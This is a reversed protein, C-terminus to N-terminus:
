WNLGIDEGGTPKNLGGMLPKNSKPLPPPPTDDVEEEKETKSAPAVQAGKISLSMKQENEDISLIKVSVEDGERVVNDVRTVRHHAVESIHVLGEVGSAIRVFAGFPMIKSVTGTVIENVPYKAEAGDWPGELLDRYSFSLKGTETDIKDIKVKVKEGETLVESPHKIRDWSIKSIHILGDVGGIDVFAGFDMIKRVIGEHEQGVQLKGMLEERAAERERELLARHSLVLNGRAPNAENVVCRMKQDVFESCDEVRFLAIQSIPIFGRIGGVKCELGGANHGTITAEVISGQDIDSWDEVDITAGPLGLEYMREDAKFGIVTVEMETGVEPLVEFYKIAVAGEHHGPLSFFVYERDVKVVTAKYKSDIVIEDQKTEAGGGLLDDMSLGSLAEDFERQIDDSMKQIRPPPFSPTGENSVTTAAETTAESGTEVTAAAATPPSQDATLSDELSAKKEEPPKIEHGPRQTGIKIAPRKRPTQSKPADASPAGENPAGENPVDALPSEATPTEVDNKPTDPTTEDSMTRLQGQGLGAAQSTFRSRPNQWPHNALKNNGIATKPWPPIKLVLARTLRIACHTYCDASAVPLCIPM